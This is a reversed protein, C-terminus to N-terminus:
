SSSDLAPSNTSHMCPRFIVMAASCPSKTHCLPSGSLAMSANRWESVGAAEEERNYIFREFKIYIHFEAVGRPERGQNLNSRCHPDDIPEPIDQGGEAKSIFMCFQEKEPKVIRSLRRQQM